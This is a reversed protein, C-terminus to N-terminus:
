AWLQWNLMDILENCSVLLGRNIKEKRYDEITICQEPIDLKNGYDKLLLWLAFYKQEDSLMGIEEAIKDYVNERNEM